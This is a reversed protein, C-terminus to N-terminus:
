KFLHSSTRVKQQLGILSYGSFDLFADLERIGILAITAAPDVGL